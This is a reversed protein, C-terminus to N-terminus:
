KRRNYKRKAPNAHEIFVLDSVDRLTYQHTDELPKYYKKLKATFKCRRKNNRYIGRLAKQLNPTLEVWCHDRDLDLAKVHTLLVLTTTPNIYRLNPTLYAKVEM